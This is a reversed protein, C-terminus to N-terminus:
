QPPLNTEPLEIVPVGTNQKVTHEHAALSRGWPQAATVQVRIFEGDVFDGYHRASQGPELDYTGTCNEASAARRVCFSYTVNSERDHCGAAQLAISSGDFYNEGNSGELIEPLQALPNWTCEPPTLDIAGMLYADEWSSAVVVATEREECGGRGNELECCLRAVLDEGAAPEYAFVWLYSEGVDVWGGEYDSM